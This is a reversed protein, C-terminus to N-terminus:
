DHLANNFRPAARQQVTVTDTADAPRDVHAGPHDTRTAHDNVPAAVRTDRIVVADPVIRSETLEKCAVGCVGHCLIM